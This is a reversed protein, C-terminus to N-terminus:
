AADVSRESRLWAAFVDERADDPPVYVYVRERHGRSGLRGICVLKVGLKGLLKQAIAMPTDTDKITLNLACKIEWKSARARQSILQVLEDSARREVRPCLLEPVRLWKLIEIPATMLNRNLDPLWVEGQGVESQAQLRKIDRLKLYEAGITLYYHYNLASYWGIDDKAVLEATVPVGYRRVLDGKRELRLEKPTKARKEKLHLYEIDQPNEELAIAECSAAYNAQCVQTLQEKLEEGPQEDPAMVELIQHGEAVLGDIISRRYHLMGLNIACGRKAWTTLSEPQFNTDLEDFQSAALLRINAKALKHQSALLSKVSTTGNGVLCGSFGRKAAWLHRDVNARVRALAQRVGDASQVGQAIGWVSTFHSVHLTEDIPFYYGLQLLGFAFPVKPAIARPKFCEISVGTEIAPSSLVIDFNPLVANLHAICGYAPHNPDAVTQSDIVLIRKHPFERKLYAELNQTGWKSKEKQASCCIFPTGGRRIDQVLATVLQSPDTGGYVHVNWRENETPLYDNVVVFPEVHFGALSRVYDIALDSLDADALYVKGDGSLTNQILTKLSRLIPVRETQCTSSNLLHWFVQEAEDIIVIGDQWHQADFRAMSSPHLSDICLGYGLTAGTPSDKIETLYPIGFRQCLAEALQVRHSLVLVWKGAHIAEAVVHELFYTKGTGKPAKIAILKATDPIELAGLYRNSVQINTPYTLTAYTRAEWAELTLAEKYAYDFAAGGHVRILDDVGKEPKSWHIVKVDCGAKTFLKGTQLLAKNINRVTSRKTEHDFCLYITRGKAAFVELQPILRPLGIIRGDNDKPQRYGNFIGPLAIAVYGRSLLAAAKKAGETIILPIEPHALVWEWFSVPTKRDALRLGLPSHYRKINYRSAVKDWITPPVKLAYIGTPFKPPAEYKILKRKDSSLRPNKPKFQGWLDDQFSNLVDVGSCWWGGQEVHRYPKLFGSTVRGTNLRPINDSIFLQEYPASGELHFFNLAILDPAIASGLALEQYEAQTLNNPHPKRKSQSTISSTLHNDSPAFLGGLNHLLPKIFHYGPPTIHKSSSRRCEILGDERIACGHHLRCVPCLHRKSTYQRKM